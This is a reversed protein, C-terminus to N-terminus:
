IIVDNFFTKANVYNSVNHLVWAQQQKSRVIGSSWVLEVGSANLLSPAWTDRQM